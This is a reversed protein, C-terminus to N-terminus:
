HSSTVRARRRAVAAVPAVAKACAPCGASADLTRGPFVFRVREGGCVPEWGDVLHVTGSPAAEGRAGGSVVARSGVHLTATRTKAAMHVTLPTVPSRNVM